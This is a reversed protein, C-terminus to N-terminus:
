SSLNPMAINPVAINLINTQLICIIIIETVNRNLMNKIPDYDNSGNEELKTRSDYSIYCIM